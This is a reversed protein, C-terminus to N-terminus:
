AARGAGAALAVELVAALLGRDFGPRVSIRAAGVEVVVVPDSVAARRPRDVRVVRAVRVRSGGGTAERALRSAWYRLGSGTFPKGEAFAASTQGSAKWAAVREVWADRNTM